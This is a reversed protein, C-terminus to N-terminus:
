TSGGSGTGAVTITITVTRSNGDRDFAVATLTYTGAAFPRSGDYRFTVAGRPSALPSLTTPLATRTSVFDSGNFYQGGRQIFLEVRAIGSGGDNDIARGVIVPFGRYSSGNAPSNFEVAIPDTTDPLRKSFFRTLQSVNGARDIAFIKIVYDGDDLAPLSGTYRYTTQIAGPSSLVTPLEVSTSSNFGSGDFYRRDNLSELSFRVMAIGSGGSNDTATGNIPNVRTVVENDTAPSNLVIRIPSIRDITVVNRAVSSTNGARDTAIATVVYSRGNTLQDESPGNRVVFNRGSLTANFYTPVSSSFSSGNFFSQGGAPNVESFAVGVSAIGSNDVATGTVTQLSRVVSGDAPSLINVFPNAREVRIVARSVDSNNGAKDTAIVSIVYSGDPTNNQNLGASRYEFLGTGNATLLVEESSGFTSGNYYNGQPNRISLRVRRIGSGADSATGRIPPISKTFTQDAPRTIQPADPKGTDVIVVNRSVESQNGAADFAIATVVYIGDEVKEKLTSSSYNFTGSTRTGSALRGDLPFSRPAAFDTGNFWLDDSDRRVAINVDTVGRNDAAVVDISNFSIQAELDPPVTIEATPAQRDPAQAHVSSPMMGAGAAVLTAVSLAQSVNKRKRIM